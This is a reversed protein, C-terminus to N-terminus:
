IVFGLCNKWGEQNEKLIKLAFEHYSILEDGPYRNRQVFRRHLNAIEVAIGVICSRENFEDLNDRIYDVGSKMRNGTILIEKPYFEAQNIKQKIYDLILTDFFNIGHEEEVETVWEAMPNTPAHVAKYEKVVKSTEIHLINFRQSIVRSIETKGAAHHGILFIM